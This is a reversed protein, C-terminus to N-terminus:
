LLILQQNSFVIGLSLLKIILKIAHVSYLFTPDNWFFLGLLNRIGPQTFVKAEAYGIASLEPTRWVRGHTPYPTMLVHTEPFGLFPRNQDSNSFLHQVSTRMERSSEKGMKYQRRWASLTVRPFLTVLSPGVSHSLPSDMLWYIWSCHVPLLHLYYLSLNLDLVLYM